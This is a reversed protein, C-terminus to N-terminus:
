HLLPCDQETYDNRICWWPLYHFWHDILGLGNYLVVMGIGGCCLLFIGNYGQNYLKILQVFSFVVVCGIIAHINDITSSGDFFGLTLLVGAVVASTKPYYYIAQGIKWVCYTLAAVMVAQTAPSISSHRDDDSM